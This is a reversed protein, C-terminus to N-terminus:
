QVRYSLLAFLGGFFIVGDAVLYNALGPWRLRNFHILAYCAACFAVALLPPRSWDDATLSQVVAGVGVAGLLWPYVRLLLIGEPSPSDRSEWLRIGVSNLACAGGFLLIPAGHLLDGWQQLHSYPGLGVGVAFLYGGLCKKTLTWPPPNWTHRLGFYLVTLIVGAAGARWIQIGAAEGPGEQLLAMILLASVGMLLTQSMAPVRSAALLSFYGVVAVGVWLGGAVTIWRMSFLAWICAAVGFGLMVPILIRCHRVAFQHRSQTGTGSWGDALRDALYVIWVAVGLVGYNVAGLRAGTVQAFIGLWVLAVAVADLGLGHFGYWFRALLTGSPQPDSPLSM